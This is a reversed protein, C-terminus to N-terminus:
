LRSEIGGQLSEDMAHLDTEPLGDSYDECIMVLAEHAFELHKISSDRRLVDSRIRPFKPQGHLPKSTEM